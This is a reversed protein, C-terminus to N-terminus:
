PFIKVNPIGLKLIADSALIKAGWERWDEENVYRELQIIDYLYIRNIEAVQLLAVRYYLYLICFTSGSIDLHCSGRNTISTRVKSTETSRYLAEM